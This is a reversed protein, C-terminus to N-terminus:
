VHARGIKSNTFSSAQSTGDVSIIPQGAPPAPVDIEDIQTEEEVDSHVEDDPPEQFMVRKVPKSMSGSAPSKLSSSLPIPPPTIKALPPSPASPQESQSRTLSAAALPSAGPHAYQTVPSKPFLESGNITMKPQNSTITVPPNFVPSTTKAATEAIRAIITAQKRAQERWSKFEQQKETRFEAIQSQTVNRQRQTATDLTLQIEPPFDTAVSDDSNNIPPIVM